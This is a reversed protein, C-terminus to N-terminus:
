WITQTRQYVAPFKEAKLKWMLQSLMVIKSFMYDANFTYEKDVKGGLSEIYAILKSANQFKNVQDLIVFVRGWLSPTSAERQHYEKTIPDYVSREVSGSEEDEEDNDDYGSEEVVYTLYLKGKILEASYGIREEYVSGSVYSDFFATPAAEALAEVLGVDRPEVAGWPGSAEVLLRNGISAVFEQLDDDSLDM